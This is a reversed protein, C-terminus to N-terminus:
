VYNILQRAFEKAKQYSQCVDRNLASHNTAYEDWGGRRNKPKNLNHHVCNVCKASKKCKPKAGNENLELDHKDGCHLCLKPGSGVMRRCKAARHGFGGCEYCQLVNDKEFLVLSSHDLYIRNGNDVIVRYNQPSVVLTVLRHNPLPQKTHPYVNLDDKEGSLQPNQRLIRKALESKEVSRGTVKLTFSPNM